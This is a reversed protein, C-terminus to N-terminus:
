ITFKYDFNSFTFDITDIIKDLLNKDLGVEQLTNILDYFRFMLYNKDFDNKDIEQFLENIFNIMILCTAESDIIDKKLAINSYSAEGDSYYYKLRPDNLIKSKNIISKAYYLDNNYILAVFYYFYWITDEYGKSRLEDVVIILQDFNHLNFYSIVLKSITINDILMIDDVHNMIEESLKSISLYDNFKYLENVNNILLVEEKPFKIM